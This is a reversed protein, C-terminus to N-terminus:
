AAPLRGVTGRRGRRGRTADASRAGRPALRSTRARSSRRRAHGVPRGPQLGGWELGRTWCHAFPVGLAAAIREATEPLLPRLAQGIVRCAEALDYLAADLRRAADTAGEREPRALTWPREDEVHRNARVVLAFIADLAARPDFSAGLARGIKPAPEGGGGPARLRALRAVAPVVGARYRHLMGVVAASLTESITPWSPRTPALSPTTASTPTVPRRSTESCGTACPTRVGPRPRPGYSRRGHRAVQEDPTRGPDPLRPRRHDDAPASRGLAADGALLRRSVPPHGQRDRPRPRPSERWYRRYLPGLTRATVWRTIYNTLADFWVYIVQDPDGPVEIGWGRARARTRSISFDELGRAM